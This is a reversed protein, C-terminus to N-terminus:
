ITTEIKGIYLPIEAPVKGGGSIQLPGIIKGEEISEKGETLESIFSQLDRGNQKSKVSKGKTPVFEHIIFIAQAAGQNKAEILTGAVAHILQYRLTRPDKDGIIASSLQRVREPVKTKPNKEISKSLYDSIIEGFSEDVKAEISILTRFGESQGILILDHNRGKGKHEDLKTELEPIGFDIIFNEFQQNQNLLQMLEAPIQVKGTRFWAKALEKASRGDQWQRNGNAPPSWDDVENIILGEKSRITVM